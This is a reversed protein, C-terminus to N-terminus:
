FVALRSQYWDYFLNCLLHLRNMENRVMKNQLLCNGKLKLSTSDIIDKEVPYYLCLCLQSSILFSTQNRIYKYFRHKIEGTSQIFIFRCEM